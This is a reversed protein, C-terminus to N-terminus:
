VLTDLLEKSANAFKNFVLAQRARKQDGNLAYFLGVLSSVDAGLNALSKLIQIDENQQDHIRAQM